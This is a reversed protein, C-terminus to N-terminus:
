WSAISARRWTNTSICVYIYTGDYALQGATGTSSASGPAAVIQAPQVSEIICNNNGIVYWKGQIFQLICSNGTANLVISGSGSSKWGANSVSVTMAGSANKMVLTKVQGETGDALSSSEGGSTSFYSVSTALSLSASPAVDESGNFSLRAMSWNVGDCVLTVSGYNGSISENGNSGNILVAGDGPSITIPNTGANGSDFISIVTGVSPALPLTIIIANSTTDAIITQSGPVTYDKLVKVPGNGVTVPYEAGVKSTETYSSVSHQAAVTLLTGDPTGTTSPVPIGNPSLLLQFNTGTGGEKIYYTTGASQYGFLSPTGSSIAWTGSIKIPQNTTLTCSGVTIQGQTGVIVLTSLTQQTELTRDAQKGFIYLPSPTDETILIETYAGTSGANGVITVNNTYELITREGPENDPNVVTDPRTSFRLDYGFNSSDEQNFRYKKGVRFTKLSSDQIGTDTSLAVQDIFFVAQTGSGDDDVSIEYEVLDVNNSWKDGFSDYKLSDGNRPDVIEVNAIAGIDQITISSTTLTTNGSVTLDGDIVVTGGVNLNKAVGAGGQVKLSGTTSSTSETLEDVSLTGVRLNTYNTSDTDLNSIYNVYVKKDTSGTYTWAEIVQYAGNPNLLLPLTFDSNKTIVGTSETALTVSKWLKVTGTGSGKSTAVFVVGTTMGNMSTSTVSQGGINVTYTGTGGQGTLVPNENKTAIIYTGPAVGSGTIYTNISITGSDKASVTLTNGTINGTFVATPDAGMTVFNTTGVENITYRSGEVVDNGVSTVSGNSRFQARINAYKGSEPWNTFTFTSNTTITYGHMSGNTVDINASGTVTQTYSTGHFNTFSGNSISNGGLDNDLTGGELATKLLVKGQLDELESKTYTFNTKIAAFNDRFGQSDNDQGAVPYTIDINTENIQSSM